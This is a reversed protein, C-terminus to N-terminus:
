TLLNVFSILVFVIAIAITLRFLTKEMGRRTAYFAGSGGWTSGLGAGRNQFIISVVLLLALMTQILELLSM